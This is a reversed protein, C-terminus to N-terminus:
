QQNTLEQDIQELKMLLNLRENKLAQIRTINGGVPVFGPNTYVSNELPTVVPTTSLHPCPRNLGSSVPYCRTAYYPTNSAGVSVRSKTYTGMQVGHNISRDNISFM